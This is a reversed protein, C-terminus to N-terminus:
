REQTQPPIATARQLRLPTGEVVTSLNTVVIRDGEELGDGIYAYEPDTLLVRVERVSLKQDEMVWVTDDNRLLERDIRIVNSLTDAHIMAEVFADIILRPKGNNEPQLALPDPVKVLVTALRTTPDLAGVQQALYGTRFNRESWASTNMIIVESGTESESGPFDLWKLRNVPVDLSVWYYETGVLRGLDDGPAVQSGTTVRQSLVHADFPASVATRSLDLEAQDVAAQAAAIRAKVANLQPQRLVLSREEPSLELDQVLALDKRAVEQRGMEVDLDTRAQLLESKALELDNHYDSPDIRLLVEGERVFGGPVFGSARKTVRGGVQASLIVDEFPLVTGTGSIVPRFDGKEAETVEVLMAMEKTANEAQVTPESVFIFFVMGATVLVIGLCILVIRSKKM